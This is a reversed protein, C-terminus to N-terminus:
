KSDFEGMFGLQRLTVDAWKRILKRYSAADDYKEAVDAITMQWRVRTLPADGPKHLIKGSGTKELDAADSRIEDITRTGDLSARMQCCIWDQAATTYRYHQIMYTGVTFLHVEGYGPDVFELALFSEFLERCNGIGNDVAGCDLCLDTM